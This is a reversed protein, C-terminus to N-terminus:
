KQAKDYQEKAESYELYQRPTFQDRMPKIIAKGEENIKHDRINKQHSNSRFQEYQFAKTPYITVKYDILTRRNTQPNLGYRKETEYRDIIYQCDKLAANIKKINTTMLDEQLAGDDVLTSLLMHYGNFTDAQQFRHTLRM